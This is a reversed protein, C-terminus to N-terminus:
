AEVEISVPGGCSARQCRFVQELELATQRSFRGSSILQSVSEEREMGCERCSVKLMTSYPLRALPAMKIPPIQPAVPEPKRAKPKADMFTM